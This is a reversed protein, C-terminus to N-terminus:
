RVMGCSPSVCRLFRRYKPLAGYGYTSTLGAASTRTTRNRLLPVKGLASAITLRTTHSGAKGDQAAASYRRGSGM